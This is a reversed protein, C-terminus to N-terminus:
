QEHSQLFSILHEVFTKAALKAARGAPFVAHIETTGMDWDKLVRILKGDSLEASCGMLGTGVIGLGAVAAATAGDNSSTAVRGELRISQARGDREFSWSAMSASPGIIIQHDSLDPPSDPVGARSLYEPSAVMVRQNRCLLRATANSDALTGFRIAVDVGERLLDQRADDMLLNIRLAPHRDLFAPLKPIVERTAFTAPLAVRLEGQLQDAGRVAQNAEDLAALIPEIRSLYDAGAETLVVARTSRMLLPAGVDKELMAIARSASPQSLSFECGAKSISGTRVVRVFLKLASISDTM